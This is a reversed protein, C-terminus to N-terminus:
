RPGPAAQAPDHAALWSVLQVRSDLALKRLIHSVHTKITARSVFLKAAIAPNSLGEVVLRAVELERATLEFMEDTEGATAPLPPLAADLAFAAERGRGLAFGQEWLAQYRGGLGARVAEDCADHHAQWYPVPAIGLDQWLSAVAGILIAARELRETSAAVWALGDLSNALGWRHALRDQIRLAEELRKEAARVDGLQWELVGLLTSLVGRVGTDGAHESVELGEVAIGRADTVRGLATFATALFYLGLPRGIPDDVGRMTERSADLLEVALEREGLRLRVVGLGMLAYALERDSGTQECIQRAEDLTSLAVDHDGVAQALYGVAWLAMARSPTPDPAAPLFREVQRLGTRYSGRLIWYGWLDVAMHLGTEADPPSAACFNLAAEVNAWEADLVDVVDAQQPTMWFPRDGSILGAYWEALRRQLETDEGSERLCEAGYLRMTELLRYRGSGGGSAMTVISRDVLGGLLEFIRDRELGGGSCVAEVAEIGFSGAFVSLRRWLIREEGGLLEHSWEVTARLAHHRDSERDGAAKLLQFRDDLRSLLDAVTISSLRAAALEIALPLGDLRRCIDTAARRNEDTLSFDPAVASARDVFLKLAEVEALAAVPMRDPSVPVELPSVAVVTEGSVGLRQRSTCLVRVGGSRSVISFVLERCGDILHECNDLVLLLRRRRLHGLLADEIAVNPREYVELTRALTHPLLEASDLEALEVLWVGDAFHRGLAHACHLGLRSKGIGGPGTLTVTHTVALLRRIELQERNRGVFSSLEVPLNGRTSRRRPDRVAASGTM